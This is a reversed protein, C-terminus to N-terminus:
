LINSLRFEPEEYKPTYKVNYMALHQANNLLSFSLLYKVSNQPFAM